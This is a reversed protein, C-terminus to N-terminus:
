SDSSQNKSCRKPLTLVFEAGRGQEEGVAIRGGHAEIFRRAIAMGLGTGKPKTSFFPEFVKRKQEDPVANIFDEVSSATPKTKIEVLKSKKEAM